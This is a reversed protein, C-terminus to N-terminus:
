NNYLNYIMIYTAIFKSLKIHAETKLKLVNIFNLFLKRFHKNFYNKQNNEVM